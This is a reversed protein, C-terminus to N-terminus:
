LHAQINQLHEEYTKAGHIRAQYDHLYYFYETKQPRLVAIIAELSPNSIPHPPLGDIVYTNYPSNLSYDSVYVTQWWGQYPSYGKGYQTTADIQLRMGINLRNWMVGAIIPMDHHGGAERQILSAMNVAKTWPINKEKFEAAFPAIKEYFRNIMMQAIQKGNTNTAILYDDPFYVGETYQQKTATYETNWKYLEDISWNFTAALLEGIQEKRMGPLVKVWYYKPTSSLKQIIQSDNQNRTIEYGGPNVSNLNYNHHCSKLFATQSSIYGTQYLRKATTELAENAYVIFSPREQKDKTEAQVKFDNSLPSLIPSPSTKTLKDFGLNKNNTFLSIALFM